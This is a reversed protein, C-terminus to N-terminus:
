LTQEFEDLLLKFHEPIKGKEIIKLNREEYVKADERPELEKGEYPKKGIDKVLFVKDEGNEANTQLVISGEENVEFIKCEIERINSKNTAMNTIIGFKQKGFFFFEQPLRHFQKADQLNQPKLALVKFSQSSGVVLFRAKDSSINRGKGDGVRSDGPPPVLNIKVENEGILLEKLSLQPYKLLSGLWFLEWEQIHPLDEFDENIEIAHKLDKVTDAEFDIEAKEFIIKVKMIVCGL